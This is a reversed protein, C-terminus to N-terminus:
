ASVSRAHGARSVDYGPVAAAEDRFSRSGLVDLLRAVAPNALRRQPVILEFSEEVVPVFSLAAALAASEVAVGVDAVGWRVMQAVEEHGRAQPADSRPPPAGLQARLQMQLQQAGAGQGRQACRLEPRALADVGGIGHPNDPAIVLGQRWRALHVISSGGGANSRALREHAHPDDGGALHVGAVHVFGAALLALARTSDAPIWTVRADRHRRAVRDALAGLLPACGAVLVQDVAGPDFLEVDVDSGRHAAERVRGDAGRGVPGLPHAVLRGDIRAVVVRADELPTAATATFAGGSALSFLDEVRCRLARALRLAVATSPTQRGAEIASLAQRSVGVAGALERQSLKAAARRRRVDSAIPESM